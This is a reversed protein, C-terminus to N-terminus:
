LLSAFTGSLTRTSIFITVLIALFMLPILTASDKESAEFFASNLMVLGSLHTQLEPHKKEFEQVMNRVYAVITPNESVDEGPLQVTVNIAAVTGQENLLRDVLLPESLAVNKIKAVEPSTKNLANTVLDEVFLDDEDAYTYQFNTIADVRTSFPVQWSDTTLEELAALTKQNFI